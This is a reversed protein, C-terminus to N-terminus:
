KRFQEEHPMKDKINGLFEVLSDISLRLSLVTCLKVESDWWACEEKLCDAWECIEEEKTERYQERLLPCKMM